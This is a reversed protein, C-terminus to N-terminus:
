NQVCHRISRTPLTPLTVYKRQDYQFLVVSIIYYFCKKKKFLNNTIEKLIIKYSLTIILTVDITNNYM